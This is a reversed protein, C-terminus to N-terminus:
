TASWIVKKCPTTTLDFYRSYMKLLLISFLLWVFIPCYDFLSWVTSNFNFTLLQFWCKFQTNQSFSVFFFSNLLSPFIYLLHVVIIHVMRFLCGLTIKVSLWPPSDQDLWESWITRPVTLCSAPGRSLHGFASLILSACLPAVLRSDRLDYPEQSSWTLSQVEYPTALSM